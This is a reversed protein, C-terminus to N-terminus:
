REQQLGTTTTLSLAGLMVYGNYLGTEVLALEQETLIEKLKSRYIGALNSQTM